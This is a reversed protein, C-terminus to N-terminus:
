PIRRRDRGNEPGAESAGTPAHRAHWHDPTAIVVADIDTRALLDCYDHHLDKGALAAFEQTRKKRRTYIDSAAVLQVHTKERSRRVWQRVHGFGMGGVGIVGLHIRDNAGIVRASAPRAAAGLRPALSLAGAAARGLFDRRSATTYNRYNM